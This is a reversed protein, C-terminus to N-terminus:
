VMSDRQAQEYDQTTDIDRRVGADDVPLYESVHMHQNLYDRLTEGESLQLIGAWKERAIMVPHGRRMQYSPILIPVHEQQWVEIMRRVTETKLQPLDGPCILAADARTVELFRLGVKVSSLMEGSAYDPNFVTEVGCGALVDEVLQRDGGTVVVVMGVGADHFTAVVKEIVTGSSAWPLVMKPTGMRKSEGAALVLAAIM